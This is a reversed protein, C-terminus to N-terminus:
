VEPLQIPDATIDTQGIKTDSMNASAKAIIDKFEEIKSYEQLLASTGSVFHDNYSSQMKVCNEMVKSMIENDECLAALRALADMGNQVSVSTVDNLVQVIFELVDQKVQFAM